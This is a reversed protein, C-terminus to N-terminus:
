SKEFSGLGLGLGLGHARLTIFTNFIAEVKCDNCMKVVTKLNRFILSQSLVNLFYWDCSKLFTLKVNEQIHFERSLATWLANVYRQNFFYKLPCTNGIYFWHGCGIYLRSHNWFLKLIILVLCDVSYSAIVRVVKVSM